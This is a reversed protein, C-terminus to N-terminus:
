DKGGCGFQPYTTSYDPAHILLTYCFLLKVVIFLRKQVSRKGKRKTWQETM